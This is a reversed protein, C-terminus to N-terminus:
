HEEAGEWPSIMPKGRETQTSEYRVQRASAPDSSMQKLSAHTNLRPFGNRYSKTSCHMENRKTQQKGERKHLLISAGVFSANNSAHLNLHKFYNKLIHNPRDRITPSKKSSLAKAVRM